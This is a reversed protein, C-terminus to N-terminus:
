VSLNKNQKSQSPVQEPTSVRTYAVAGNEDDDTATTAWSCFAATDPVADQTPAGKGIAAAAGKVVSSNAALFCAVLLLCQSRMM